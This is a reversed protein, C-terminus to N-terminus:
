GSYLSGGDLCSFDVKDFCALVISGVGSPEPTFMGLKFTNYTDNDVLSHVNSREVFQFDQNFFASGVLEV